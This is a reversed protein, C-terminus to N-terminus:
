ESTPIVSYIGQLRGSLFEKKECCKKLRWGQLFNKTNILGFTLRSNKRIQNIIEGDLYGTSSKITFRFDVLESLDVCVQDHNVLRLWKSKQGRVQKNRFVHKHEIYYGGIAPDINNLVTEIQNKLKETVINDADLALIWNNSFLM